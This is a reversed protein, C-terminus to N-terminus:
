ACLVSWCSFLACCPDTKRSDRVGDIRESGRLQCPSAFPLRSVGAPPNEGSGTPGHGKPHMMQLSNLAGYCGHRIRKILPEHCNDRRIYAVVLLQFIGASCRVSFTLSNRSYIVYIVQLSM